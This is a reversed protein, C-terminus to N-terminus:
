NISQPFQVNADLTTYISETLVTIVGSAISCDFEIYFNKSAGLVPQDNVDLFDQNYSLRLTLPERLTSTPFVQFTDLALTM